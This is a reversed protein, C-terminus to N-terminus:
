LRSSNEKHENKSRRENLPKEITISSEKRHIRTLSLMAKMFKLDEKTFHLHDPLPPGIPSIFEKRGEIKRILAHNRSWFWSAFSPVRVESKKKM